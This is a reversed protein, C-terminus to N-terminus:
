KDFRWIRNVISFTFVFKSSLRKEKTKRKTNQRGKSRLVLIHRQRENSQTKKKEKWTSLKNRSSSNNSGKEWEYILTHKEEINQDILIRSNTTQNRCFFCSQIYKVTIKRKENQM